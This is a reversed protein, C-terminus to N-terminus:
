ALDITAVIPEAVEPHEKHRADLFIFKTRFMVQIKKEDEKAHEKIKNLEIKHHYDHFPVDRTILRDHPYTKSYIPKKLDDTRYLLVEIRILTIVFIGHNYINYHRIYNGGSITHGRDDIYPQPEVRIDFDAKMIKAMSKTERLYIWTLGLLVWTAIFAFFQGLPIINTVLFSRIQSWCM